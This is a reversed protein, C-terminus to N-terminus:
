PCRRTPLEGTYVGVARFRVGPEAYEELAHAVWGAIRALQFVLEAAGPRMRYTGALAALALDVTPFLEERTALRAAMADVAARPPGDPLMDLLLEARPDQRRYVAHGFGPPAQGGRLWRDLAADPGTAVAAALLRRAREPAAAHLPGDAAGLGASIVGHVDARVSAAVRAALTSAALGHDALLVLAADLVAVDRPDPVDGSATADPPGTRHGTDAPRAGLARWLLGAVTAVGPEAGPAGPRAVGPGAGATDAAAALAAALATITTRAAPVVAAPRRDGRRPDLAALVTVGIRLRDAPRATAPLSGMAASVARVTGPEPPPWTRPGPRGLWLLDAVSEYGTGVLEAVPRGRYYLRDDDLATVATRIRELAGRPSRGARGRAALEEVEDAAFASGPHGPRRVSALLGRSVYAYVTEPKVGLRRATEATSLFGAEIVAGSHRRRDGAV